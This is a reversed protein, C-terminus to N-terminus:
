DGRRFSYVSRQTFDPGRRSNKCLGVFEFEERARMFQALEAKSIAGPATSRRRKKSREIFAACWDHNNILRGSHVMLDLLQSIPHGLPNDLALHKLITDRPFVGTIGAFKEAKELNCCLLFRAPNKEPYSFMQSLSSWFDQFSVSFQSRNDSSNPVASDWKARRYKRKGERYVKLLGEGNHETENVAPIADSLNDLHSLAVEVKSRTERICRSYLISLGSYEVMDEMEKLRGASDVLSARLQSDELRSWSREISPMTAADGLTANNESDKCWIRFCECLLPCTVKWAALESVFDSGSLNEWELTMSSRSTSNTPQGLLIALTEESKPLSMLSKWRSMWLRWSVTSHVEDLDLLLPLIEDFFFPPDKCTDWTFIFEQYACKIVQYLKSLDEDLLLFRSALQHISEFSLLLPGGAHMELEGILAQLLVRSPTLSFSKIQVLSLERAGLVQELSDVQFARSILVACPRLGSPRHRFATALRYLSDRLDQSTMNQETEILVVADQATSEGLDSSQGVAKAQLMSAVEAAGRVVVTRVSIGYETNLVSVVQSPHLLGEFVPRMAAEGRLVAVPLRAGNGKGHEGLFQVVARIDEGRLREMVTDM